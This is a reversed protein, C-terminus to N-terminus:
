LKPAELKKGLPNIQIDNSTRPFLNCQAQQQMLADALVLAMMSEVMPVQVCM